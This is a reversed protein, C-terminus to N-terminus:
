HGSSKCATKLEQPAFAYMMKAMAPVSMKCDGELWALIMSIAGSMYFKFANRICEKEEENKHVGSLLTGKWLAEFVGNIYASERM